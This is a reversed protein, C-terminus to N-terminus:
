AVGGNATAVPSPVPCTRAGVLHGNVPGGTRPPAAFSTERLDARLPLPRELAGPDEVVRVGSVPVGRAELSHLITRRSEPGSRRAVVEVAVGGPVAWFGCRAPLPIDDLAELAELVDRPTTWGDAHRAALRRKGLLNSTARLHGLSCDSPEALERVLDETDYRLVVTADRYPAFPTAVLTGVEGPRAPAGTEPDLVEVLGHTPEFHLHGRECCVGGLPWTETMAYGEEFAIAGFLRQARAKLGATVVEGGVIVREIGFNAPEYGLAMGREALEGLYSPYTLLVSPKSKKGPIPRDEALLSLALEPEVLGVVNVLAGVRACSGAFCANGLTARSSTNLQVVDRETVSADTLRRIAGLAVCARLEEESFYVVTPRGTTGTSTARLAIAAGRRVFSEPHDRLAAKSTPPIRAIDEHRLGAPDLGVCRFLDAYQQTERAGRVAQQRFRRLQLARRDPEDLAPGGLVEAGEREIVGFERRTQLLADVLRDLSRPDFPLGFLLAAAFRLQAIAAGLM